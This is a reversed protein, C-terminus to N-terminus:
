PPRASSSERAMRILATALHTVMGLTEGSVKDHTDETTHHWANGPGYELDIVLIARIGAQQLPRHDDLLGRGKRFPFSAGYGLRHASRWVAAVTEGAHAVSHGEQLFLPDRDGVMDWVVALVPPPRGAQAHAYRRSGILTETSDRFSGYDEGDVFLLDVGVEPTRAHLADAVGLLVAVGSAGDNAGPVPEASEPPDARPRTDWHAVYLIRNAAEPRFHATINRLSLTEGRSTVHLWQDVTVSDARKRLLSDLWDGMGRHGITGPIRPGFALQAEVYRSLTPPAIEPPPLDLPCAVTAILAAVAARPPPRM